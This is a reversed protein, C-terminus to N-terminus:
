IVGGRPAQVSGAVMGPPTPPPALPSGAPVASPQIGSNGAILGKVAQARQLYGQPVTIPAAAASQLQQLEAQNNWQQNGWQQAAIQKEIAENQAIGSGIGSILSGAGQIAAAGGRSNLANSLFGSSGSNVQPVSSAAANVDATNTMPNVGQPLGTASNDTAVAANDASPGGTQAAQAASASGTPQVAATTGANQAASSGAANMAPNSLDSNAATLGTTNTAAAADPTSGAVTGITSTSGTAQAMDTPTSIAQSDAAQTAPSQIVSSASNLDQTGQMAQWGTYAAGLSVAATLASGLGSQMFKGVSGGILGFQSAAGVALVGAALLGLGGTMIGGVIGVVDLIGGLLSM